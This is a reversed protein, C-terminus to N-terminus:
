GCSVTRCMDILMGREPPADPLAYSKSYGAKGDQAICKVVEPELGQTEMVERKTSYHMPHTQSILLVKAHSFTLLIPIDEFNEFHAVLAIPKYDTKM